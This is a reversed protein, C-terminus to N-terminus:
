AESQDDGDVATEDDCDDEDDSPLESEERLLASERERKEMEKLFNRTAISAAKKDFGPVDVGGRQKRRNGLVMWHLLILLRRKARQLAMYHELELEAIDMAESADVMSKSGQDGARSHGNQQNKDNDKKEDVAQIFGDPHKEYIAEIRERLGSGPPYWCNLSDQVNAKQSAALLDYVKKWGPDCLVWKPNIPFTFGQKVKECLVERLEEENVYMWPVKGADADGLIVLYEDDLDQPFYYNFCEAGHRVAGNEKLRSVAYRMISYSKPDAYGFKPMKAGKGTPKNYKLVDLWRRSWPHPSPNDLTNEINTLTWDMIEVQEAPLPKKYSVGRTGVLFCDFDSVVPIVKNNEEYALLLTRPDMPGEDEKPNAYQWVVARPYMDPKWVRTSGFNMDQFEPISGRKTDYESGPERHVNERVVYSEWFLREPIEVGYCQAFPGWGKNHGYDDILTIVPDEMDWKRVLEVAENIEAEDYEHEAEAAAGPASHHGSEGLVKKADEVVKLMEGRVSEIRLLAEKRQQPKRYFVRIKADKPLERIMHKHEEKHIQVFPVYGSLKGDKASKGKVNLGKGTGYGLMMKKIAVMSTPRWVTFVAARRFIQLLPAVLEARTVGKTDIDEVGGLAIDNFYKLITFRPDLRRFSAAWDRLREIQVMDEFDTAFLLEM